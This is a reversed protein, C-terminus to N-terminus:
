KSGPDGTLGNPSNRPTPTLAMRCGFIRRQDPAPLSLLGPAAARGNEGAPSLLGLSFRLSLGRPLCKSFAMPDHAAHPVGHPIQLRGDRM